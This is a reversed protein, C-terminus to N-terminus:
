NTKSLLLLLFIALSIALEGASVVSAAQKADRRSVGRVSISFPEGHKHFPRSARTVSPSFYCRSYTKSSECLVVFSTGLENQIPQFSYLDGDQTKGERM